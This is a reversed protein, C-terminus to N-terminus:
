WIKRHLHCYPTKKIKKIIFNIINKQQGSPAMSFLSTAVHFNRSKLENILEIAIKQQNSDFYFIASKYQEGIDPGQGNNQTFDHIEFFYHLIKQYSIKEPDFVIRLSELHGSNGRCVAQYDPKDLHGGCYGVETKVVGELQQFLYEVGWFCGAAVIAEETDLIQLDAVFDLSASNVCHRLNKATFGEGEFAHGLHGNCRACLIEIRHGDM